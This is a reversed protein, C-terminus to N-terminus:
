EEKEKDIKFSCLCDGRLLSKYGDILEKVCEESCYTRLIPEFYQITKEEIMIKTNHVANINHLLETAIRQVTKTNPTM